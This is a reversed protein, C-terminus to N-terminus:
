KGEPWDDGAVEKALSMVGFNEVVADLAKTATYAAIAGVVWVALGAGGTIRSQEELSLEVTEKALDHINM